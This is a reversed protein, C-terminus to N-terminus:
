QHQEKNYQFGSGGGNNTIPQLPPSDPVQELEGLNSLMSFDLSKSMKSTSASSSNLQKELMKVKKKEEALDARLAPLEALNANAKHLEANEAELEANRALLVSDPKTRLAESLMKELEAIRKGMLSRAKDEDDVTVETEMTASSSSKTNNKETKLLRRDCAKLVKSRALFGRHHAQIKTAMNNM